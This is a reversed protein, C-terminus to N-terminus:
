ASALSQRLALLHQRAAVLEEARERSASLNAMLQSQHVVIRAPVTFIEFRLRKPRAARLRDPLAHRKLVTLVNYGIANLRFWAANAGFRQSPLVGAGLEDKMSRHVHEITGAKEWHWNVLATASLADGRPGVRDDPAPRNTVVALYHLGREGLLEGQRPTFRLAVYRLPRAMRPWDGPAFEVEAVHVTERERVALEVWQAAPVAECCARLEPSMDASISFLIGERILYKLLPEYYDASDGRFCRREVWAPLAAFARRVSTLPDKNGPVNGDRFEDGVILDQEAWVALLPQYGKTGEYAVRADRKHAEIITGDHDITATTQDRRAARRVLERNVEFLASLPATEPPVWSREDAPRQAWVAPDDFAGLFDLLADPSPLEGGLLRALGRDDRLLRIDEVRDGGAAILLLLAEFKETESFGRQRRAVRLRHAVVEDLRVARAAELVLPLGAYATVTDGNSHRMVFPLIGQRAAPGVAPSM